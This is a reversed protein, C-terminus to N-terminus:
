QRSRVKKSRTLLDEVDVLRVRRPIHLHRPMDATDHRSTSQPSLSWVRVAKGCCSHLPCRSHPNGRRRAPGCRHRHPCNWSESRGGSTLHVPERATDGIDDLSRPCAARSSPHRTGSNDNWGDNELCPLEGQRAQSGITGFTDCGNVEITKAFYSSDLEIQSYLNGWVETRM